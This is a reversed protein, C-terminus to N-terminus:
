DSRNKPAETAELRIVRPGFFSDSVHGRVGLTTGIAEIFSEPDLANFRGAVPIAGVAPDPIVMRRRNVQNFEMVVEGLTEGNFSLFGDTWALKRVIDEGEITWQTVREGVLRAAEGAGLTASSPPNLTVRGETVLVEVASRDRMRVLFQTGVARVTASGAVVDFPRESNHSVKFLAQGQLLRVERHTPTFRVRVQSNTNLVVTSGDQLIFEQAPKDIQTAYLETGGAEPVSWLALGAAVFGIAAAAAGLM